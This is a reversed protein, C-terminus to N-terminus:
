SSLVELKKRYNSASVGTHLKFKKYFWDLDTYGVENAVEYIRMDTHDLLFKAKEMRQKLLYQHFTMKEHNKFKQGLYSCNYHLSDSIEKLTINEHISKEVYEKIEDIINSVKKHSVPKRKHSVLSHDRSSDLSRKVRLLSSVLDSYRVPEVLYETIQLNIVRKVFNFDRSGGFLIIPIQSDLRIRECLRIGKENLPSLNIFIVAYNNKHYLSLAQKMTEAYDELQFGFHEWYITENLRKKSEIDSDVLLVKYM